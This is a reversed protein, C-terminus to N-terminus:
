GDTGGGRIARWIVRLKRIIHEVGLEYTTLHQYDEVCRLVVYLDDRRQREEPSLAAYEGGIYTSDPRLRRCADALRESVPDTISWRDRKDDAVGFWLLGHKRQVPDCAVKSDDSM